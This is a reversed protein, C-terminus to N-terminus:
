PIFINVFVQIDQGDAGGSGNLDSRQVHLPDTDVGLLVRVFFGLDANNVVGNGDIDGQLSPPLDVRQVNGARPVTYTAMLQEAGAGQKVYVQVAQGVLAADASQSSGDALSELRIRLIYNNGAQPGGDGMHYSGLSAGGATRRATVTVDDTATIPVGNITISGYVVADTLPISARVPTHAIACAALCVLAHHVSVSKM